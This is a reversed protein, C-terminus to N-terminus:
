TDGFFFNAVYNEQVMAMEEARCMKADWVLVADHIVLGGSGDEDLCGHGDYGHSAGHFLGYKMLDRPIEVGCIKNCLFM